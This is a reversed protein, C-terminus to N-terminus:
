KLPMQVEVGLGVCSLKLTIIFYVVSSKGGKNEVGILHGANDFYREGQVKSFDHL